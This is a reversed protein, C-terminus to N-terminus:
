YAMHLYYNRYILHSMLGFSGSEWLYIVCTEFNFVQVRTCRVNGTVGKHLFSAIFCWVFLHCKISSAHRCGGVKYFSNICIIKFIDIATPEVHYDVNEFIM